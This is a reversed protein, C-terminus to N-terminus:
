GMKLGVVFGAIASGGGVFSLNGLREKVMNFIWLFGQQGSEIGSQLGEENLTIIHQNELIFLAILGIGVLFLIIKFSKKLAYGVALGVVFASGMEMYPIGTQNTNDNM